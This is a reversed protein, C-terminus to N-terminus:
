IQKRYLCMYHTAANNGGFWPFIERSKKEMAPYYFQNHYTEFETTITLAVIKESYSVTIYVRFVDYPNIEIIAPEHLIRQGNLHQYPALQFHGDLYRWGVMFSNEHNGILHFSAGGLKNWDMQDVENLSYICTTDFYYEYNYEVRDNWTNERPLFGHSNAEVCLPYYTNYVLKNCGLTFVTLFILLFKNM